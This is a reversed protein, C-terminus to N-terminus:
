KSNVEFNEANSGPKIDVQKDWESGFRAAVVQTEDGRIQVKNPGIPAKMSYRGRTIAGSASAGKTSDLPVFVITGHELPVTGDLTVTGEVKGHTAPGSLTWWLGIAVIIGLSGLVCWLLLQKQKETMTKPKDTKRPFSATVSGPNSPDPTLLIVTGCSTCRIKKQETIGDSVKMSKRCVTCTVPISMTAGIRTSLDSCGPAIRHTDDAMM